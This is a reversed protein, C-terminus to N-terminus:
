PGEAFQAERGRIERFQRSRVIAEVAASFRYENKELQRQMEHLLPEDSLQVSRGLAFGLLKRNFQRLVADRRTNLLYDRLGQMGQFGAGDPLRARTDITRGGLDKERHRGIADYGELAYGLPDMRV